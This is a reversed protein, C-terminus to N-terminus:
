KPTKTTKDRIVDRIVDGVFQLKEVDKIHDVDVVHEVNPLQM